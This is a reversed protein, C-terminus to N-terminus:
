SKRQQMVRREATLEALLSQLSWTVSTPTLTAWLAPKMEAQRCGSMLRHMENQTIGGMIIARPLDSSGGWGAGDDLNALEGVLNDAQDDAVWIKPIDSVGILELLECFNPQVAASFGCLLLKRPGYLPKDNPLVKKFTTDTM